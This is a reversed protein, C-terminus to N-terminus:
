WIHWCKGIDTGLVHSTLHICMHPRIDPFGCAELNWLHRHLQLCGAEAESCRPGRRTIPARRLSISWDPHQAAEALQPWPRQAAGQRLWPWQAAGQRLWLRQAAGQRLWGWGPEGWLDAGNYHEPQQDVNPFAHARSMHKSFGDIVDSWLM